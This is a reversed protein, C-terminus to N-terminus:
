RHMEEARFSIKQFRGTFRIELRLKNRNVYLTHRNAAQVEARQEALPHNIAIPADYRSRSFVRSCRRRSISTMDAGGEGEARPSVM